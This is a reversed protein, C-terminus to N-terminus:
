KWIDYISKRKNFAEKGGEMIDVISKQISPTDITGTNLTISSSDEFSCSLIKESDGLVPINANHTAFIFQMKGKLTLIEKIVEDYITQNDLDDEPQDIILVDNDKQALLFLILASARQGLSHRSLSKGKYNIAVKDKVRFTLLEELNETFRTDFVSKNNGLIDVLKDTDRYLEIFDTFKESITQYAAERIGTGKFIEKIKNLFYKKSGKFTVEISLNTKSDNIKDKEANLINFEKLWLENLENLTKLLDTKLTNQKETQKNIEQLKIKSTTVLRNLSLFTDPNLSDSNIERKIKAFEEATEAKKAEFAKIVNNFKDLAERNRENLKRLEEFGKKM